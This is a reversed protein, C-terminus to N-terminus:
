VGNTKATSIGKENQKANVAAQQSRHLTPMLDEFLDIQRINKNIIASNAETSIRIKSSQKSAKKPKQTKYAHIIGDNILKDRLPSITEYLAAALDEVHIIDDTYNNLNPVPTIIKPLETDCTNYLFTEL